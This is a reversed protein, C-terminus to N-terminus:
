SEPVVNLVVNLAIEVVLEGVDGLVQTQAIPVASVQQVEAIAVVGGAWDGVGRKRRAADTLVSLRTAIVRGHEEEVRVREQLPLHVLRADAALEALKAPGILKVGAQSSDANSPLRSKNSVANSDAQDSDGCQSTEKTDTRITATRSQDQAHQGEQSEQSDQNSASDHRRSTNLSAIRDVLM